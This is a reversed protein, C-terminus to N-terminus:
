MISCSGSARKGADAQLKDKEEKLKKLEEEVAKAKEQLEALQGELGKITQDKAEGALEAEALKVKLTEQEEGVKDRVSKEQEALKAELEAASSEKFALLQKESEESDKEVVGEQLKLKEGEWEERRKAAESTLRKNEEKEAEFASELAVKETKLGEVQEELAKKEQTLAEVAKVGSGRRLFSASLSTSSKTGDHTPAGSETESMESPDLSHNGNTGDGMTSRSARPALISFMRRPKPPSKAESSSRGNVEAGSDDGNTAPPAEGDISDRGKLSGDVSSHPLQLSQTQPRLGPHGEEQPNTKPLAQPQLPTDPDLHRDGNRHGNRYRHPPTTLPRQHRHFTLRRRQRIEADHRHRELFVFLTIIFDVIGLGEEFVELSAPNGEKWPTKSFKARRFSGSTSGGMPGEFWLAGTDRDGKKFIEATIKTEQGRFTVESDYTDRVKVKSLIAFEGDDADASIAKEITITESHFWRAPCSTKYLAKGDKTSWTADWVNATSLVLEM